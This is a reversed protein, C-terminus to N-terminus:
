KRITLLQWEAPERVFFTRTTANYRLTQYKLPFLSLGDRTLLGYRGSQSVVVRDDEVLEISDFRPELLIRGNGDALGCRGGLYFLFNKSDVRRISDYRLELRTNGERDILGWQGSRAVIALGHQFESPRDYAPQIVIQDAKDIFGWKGLIRVPALGERFNGADEYRNAIRLRGREDVFGFKGDRRVVTLGEHEEAVISSGPATTGPELMRYRVLQSNFSVEKESGDPLRELFHDSEIQVSNDTFYIINGAYDKVLSLSGTKILYGRDGVLSLPNPQPPLQWVDERNIIGYLGKFKVAVRDESFSLLSDYVCAIREYGVRDIAGAYHQHFVRYMGREAADMRDYMRSTKRIGVTDYLDWGTKGEFRHQARVLHGDRILTDFEIPLILSGNTRMLGYKGRAGVVFKEEEVSGIYDHSTPIIEHFLTDVLGSKGNLTRRLRNPAMATIADAETRRLERQQNDIVMWADPKRVKVSESRDIEIDRYKADALVEGTRDIVGRYSGKYLIALDGQFVSLSDIDFGTIWKGDEACLATKGQFDRVAYRLSGLPTIDQYIVPLITKNSLDLLGYQYRALNKIMVIAHLDHLTIDDYVFPLVIDGKLNLCGTKTTVPSIARSARIYSGGASTLSSFEAKTIFEKKLNLLGWRGAQRYGTIEGLLSFSGDSWGLADFAAPVVVKGQEDRIGVKGDQEFREYVLATVSSAQACLLIVFILRRM